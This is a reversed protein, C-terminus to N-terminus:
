HPMALGSGSSDGSIFGWATNPSKTAVFVASGTRVVAQEMAIEGAVLDMLVHPRDMVTVIAVLGTRGLPQGTAIVLGVSVMPDHHQGTTTAGVVWVMPDPLQATVAVGAGWAM